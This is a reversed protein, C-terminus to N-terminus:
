RAYLVLYNYLKSNKWYKSDEPLSEKIFNHSNDVLLHKIAYVPAPVVPLFSFVHKPMYKSHIQPAPVGRKYQFLSAALVRNFIKSEM